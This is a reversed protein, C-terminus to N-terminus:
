GKLRDFPNVMDSNGTRVFAVRLHRVEISTASEDLAIALANTLLNKLRRFYGECADWIAYGVEESSLLSTGALPLARSLGNLVGLFVSDREFPQLTVAASWRTRYQADSDILDRLAPTGLLIIAIRARSYIRKIREGVPGMLRDSKRKSATFTALRQAEDLVLCRGGVRAFSAVLKDELTNATVDNRSVREGHQELIAIMVDKEDPGSYLDVLAVPVELRYLTEHRPYRAILQEGLFSKGCGGEGLVMLGGPEDVYEAQDVLFCATDLASQFARTLIVRQKFFQLRSAKDGQIARQRALEPDERVANSPAPDAFLGGGVSRAADPEAARDAHETKM